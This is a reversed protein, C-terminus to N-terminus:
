GDGTGEPPTGGSTAAEGTCSQSIRAIKGALDDFCPFTGGEEAGVMQVSSGDFRFWLRRHPFWLSVVVAALYLAGCALALPLTPDSSIQWTTYRSLFFTIPTGEVELTEGDPVLGSGLVTGHTDAAEVFLHRGETQYALRLTLGARPLILDQAPGGTLSVHFVGEPAEVRAAPAYGQLHFRMGDVMLPHNIRVIQSRLVASRSTVSLPVRYDRPQGDPHREITLEGAEVVYGPRGEIAVPQGPLLVLGPEQWGLVPRAAASFALLIAASHSLPRALRGWRGREAFLYAYQGDGRHEVVTRYWNGRARLATTAAELAADLSRASWESRHTFGSYFAEPRVVQPRRYLTWWLRPLRQVTCFGTNLLLTALLLLYWASHYADFMGLSHLMATAAGYRLRVASLWADTAELSAPMQPFLGSVVSAALLALFLVVALKTSGLVRYLARLVRM